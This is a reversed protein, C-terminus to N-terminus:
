DPFYAWMNRSFSFNLKEHHGTTCLPPSFVRDITGCVLDDAYIIYCSQPHSNVLVDKSRIVAETHQPLPPSNRGYGSIHCLPISTRSIEGLIPETCCTPELPISLKIDHACAHPPVTKSHPSIDLPFKLYTYM